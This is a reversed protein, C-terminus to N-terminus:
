KEELNKRIKELLQISGQMKPNNYCTYAQELLMSITQKLNPSYAGRYIQMDKPLNSAQEDFWNKLEDLEEITYTTTRKTM